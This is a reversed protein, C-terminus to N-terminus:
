RVRFDFSLRQVFINAQDDYAETIGTFDSQVVQLNNGNFVKCEFMTRIINAIELSRQYDTEAVVIEFGVADETYLDKTYIPRIYTRSYVVYPFQTGFEAVLPFVRRNVYSNLQSNNVLSNYIVEALMISNIM